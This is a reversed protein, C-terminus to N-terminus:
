ALMVYKKVIKVAESEDLPGGVPLNLEVASGQITKQLCGIIHFFPPFVYGNSFSAWDVTFVDIYTACPDPYQSM